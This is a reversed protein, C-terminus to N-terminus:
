QQWLSSSTVIQQWVYRYLLSDKCSVRVLMFSTLMEVPFMQRNHSGDALLLVTGSVFKTSGTLQRGRCSVAAM